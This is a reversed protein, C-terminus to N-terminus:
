RRSETGRHRHGAVLVHSDHRSQRNRRLLRRRLGPHRARGRLRPRQVLRSEPQPQEEHRRRLCRHDNPVPQNISKFYQDMDSQVWGGGLEVIAIVGGGALGTPWKYATCLDPTSWPAPAQPGLQFHPTLRRLKFYPHCPVRPSTPM